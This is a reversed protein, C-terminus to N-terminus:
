ANHTEGTQTEHLGGDRLALVRAMRAALHEAHTAMVLTVGEERNLEGLLEALRESNDRDLSGTPEDALLLVPRNILARVVAARQREGASLQGPRHDLRHSLGVRELLRRARDPADAADGRSAGALTPVLVNELVTCQELLHHLQFVFGIRRSRLRALEDDDLATLDRGELQVRGTQPSDLAGMLNLLTSKGCGSPGVVALSEGAEVRLSLGRLVWAEDRAEYRKWIDTLELM